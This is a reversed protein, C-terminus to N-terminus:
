GRRAKEAAKRQRESAHYADVHEMRYTWSPFRRCISCNSGEVITPKKGTMPDPACYECDFHALPKLLGGAPLGGRIRTAGEEPTESM